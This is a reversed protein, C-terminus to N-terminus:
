IEDEKTIVFTGVNDWIEALVDSDEKTSDDNHMFAYDEVCIADCLVTGDPLRYAKYGVPLDDGCNDCHWVVSSNSKDLMIM